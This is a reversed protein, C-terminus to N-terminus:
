KFNNLALEIAISVQRENFPKLIYAYPKTKSAKEVISSDSYATLFIFPINYTENIIGALQIGDLEGELVIDLLLIDVDPHQSILELANQATGAIGLIQYNSNGLRNSIDQAIRKDDEVIIIKAKKTKITM